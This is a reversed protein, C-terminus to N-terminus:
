PKQRRLQLVEEWTINIYPHFLGFVNDSVKFVTYVGVTWRWPPLNRTQSMTHAYLRCLVTWCIMKIERSVPIPCRRCYHFCHHIGTTQLLPLLLIVWM